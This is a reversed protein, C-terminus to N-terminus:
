MVRTEELMIDQNLLVSQVISEIYVVGPLKCRTPLMLLKDVQFIALIFIDAM